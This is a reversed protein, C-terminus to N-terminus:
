GHGDIQFILEFVQLTADIEGLRSQRLELSLESKDGPLEPVNLEIHVGPEVIDIAVDVPQTTFERANNSASNSTGQSLPSAISERRSIGIRVLKSKLGGFSSGGL